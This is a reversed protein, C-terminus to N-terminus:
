VVMVIVAVLIVAGIGIIPWHNKPVNSGTFVRRLKM